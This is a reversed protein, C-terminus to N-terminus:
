PIGCKQGLTVVGVTTPLQPVGPDTCSSPSSTSSLSVHTDKRKRQGQDGPKSVNINEPQTREHWTPANPSRRVPRPM